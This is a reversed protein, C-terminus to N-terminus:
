SSWQSCIETFNLICVNENLFVSKFIHKISHRGDQRPEFLPKDGPRHWAMIQVLAPINIIRSKPVFKLSINIHIWINENLFICKFIDDALHRGNQRPRMINFIGGSRGRGACQAEGPAWKDSMFTSLPPTTVFIVNCPSPTDYRHWVMYFWAM